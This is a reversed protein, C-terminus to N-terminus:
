GVNNNKLREINLQMISLGLDALAVDFAREVETVTETVEKSRKLQLKNIYAQAKVLDHINIM